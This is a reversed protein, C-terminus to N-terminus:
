KIDIWMSPRVSYNEQSVQLGMASLREVENNINARSAHNNSYGPTRLWWWCYGSKANTYSGSEKAYATAKALSLDHTPLYYNAENYSLLFVKDITNNGGYSKRYVISDHNNLKTEVIFSKENDNFATNYFDANLWKRLTCTEWTVNTLEENYKKSYLADKSILLVKNNYKDLVIWEIPEAGNELDNDQEYNGLFVTEGIDASYLKLTADKSLISNIHESSDKFNRIEAFVKIADKNNGNNEFKCANNYKISPIIVFISALVGCTIVTVTAALVAIGKITILKKVFTSNKFSLAEFVLVCVIAVIIGVFTPLTHIIMFIIGILMTVVTALYQKTISDYDPELVQKKNIYESEPAKDKFAFFAFILQSIFILNFIALCILTIVKFQNFDGVPAPFIFVSLNFLFLTVTWLGLYFYFFKKM